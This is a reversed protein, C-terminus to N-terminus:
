AMGMAVTELNGRCNAGATPCRAAVVLTLNWGPDWRDGAVPDGGAEDPPKAGEVADAVVQGVKPVAEATAAGEEVNAAV